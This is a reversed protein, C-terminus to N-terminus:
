VCVYEYGDSTTHREWHSRDGMDPIKPAPPARRVGHRGSSRSSSSGRGDEDFVLRKNVTTGGYGGGSPSSGTTSGTTPPSYQRIFAAAAAITADVGAETTDPVIQEATAVVLQRTEHLHATRASVGAITATAAAAAPATAATAATAALEMAAAAAAAAPSSTLPSTPRPVATSRPSSKHMTAKRQGVSRLKAPPPARNHAKAKSSQLRPIRSAPPKTPRRGRHAASAGGRGASGGGGWRQEALQSSKPNIQPVFTPKAAALQAAVAPRVAGIPAAVRSAPDGSLGTRAAQRAALAETRESRSAATSRSALAQMPLCSVICSTFSGCCALAFSVSFMRGVEARRRKVRELAARKEAYQQGAAALRDEVPRQSDSSAALALAASRPNIRPQFLPAGTELDVGEEAALEARKAMAARRKAGAAAMAYLRDAVDGQRPLRASHASLKPKHAAAEAAAEAARAAKKRAARAKAQAYLRAGAQESPGGAEAATAPQRRHHHHRGPSQEAGRENDDLEAEQHELEQEAKRRAREALARSRASIKPRRQKALAASQAKAQRERAAKLKAQRRAEWDLMMGVSRTRRASRANIRPASRLEAVEQAALSDRLQQTKAAVAQAHQAARAAIGGQSGKGQSM